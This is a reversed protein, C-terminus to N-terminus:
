AIARASRTTSRATRTGTASRRRFRGCAARTDQPRGEPERQDREQRRAQLGGSQALDIVAQEPIYGTDASTKADVGPDRATSSSASSAAPSSCKTRPRSSRAERLRRQDLQPLQPVHARRRGLRGARARPREAARHARREVKGYVSPAAALKKDFSEAHEQPEGQAKAPDFNTVDLKGSDRLYPALIETYWGGGPWLEVVHSSTHDRRLVRADREPPPLRRAREGQRRASRAPSRGRSARTAPTPRRASARDVHEPSAPKARNQPPTRAAARSCALALAAICAIKLSM